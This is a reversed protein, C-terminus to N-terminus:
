DKHHRASAVGEVCVRRVWQQFLRVLQAEGQPAAFGESNSIIKTEFQTEQHPLHRTKLVTVKSKRTTCCQIPSQHGSESYTGPDGLGQAPLTSKDIVGLLKQLSSKPNRCGQQEADAAVDAYELSKCSSHAEAEADQWSM